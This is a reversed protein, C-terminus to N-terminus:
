VGRPKQNVFRREVPLFIYKESSDLQLAQLLAESGVQGQRWKGWARHKEAEELMRNGNSDFPHLVGATDPSAEEM